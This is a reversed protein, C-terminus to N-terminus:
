LVQAEKVYEKNWWVAMANGPNWFGQGIGEMKWWIREKGWRVASRPQMGNMKTM